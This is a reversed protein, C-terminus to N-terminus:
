RSRMSIVKVYLVGSLFVAGIVVKKSLPLNLNVIVPIPLLFIIADVIISTFGSIIGTRTNAANCRLQADFNIHPDKLSCNSVALSLGVLYAVSM